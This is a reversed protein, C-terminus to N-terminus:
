KGKVETILSNVESDTLFNDLTVVWPDRSLINVDYIGGFRIHIYIHIYIYM